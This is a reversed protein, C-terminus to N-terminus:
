ARFRTFLTPQPGDAFPLSDAQGTVPNPWVAENEIRAFARLERRGGASIATLHDRVERNLCSRCRTGTAQECERERHGHRRAAVISPRM